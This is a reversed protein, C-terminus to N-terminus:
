EHKIYLLNKGSLLLKNESFSMHNVESDEQLEIELEWNLGANITSYLNNDSIIFWSDRDKIFFFKVNNKILSWNSGLDNSVMFEESSTITFLLDHDFFYPYWGLNYDEGSILLEWNDYGNSSRIVYKKLDSLNDIDLGLEYFYDDSGKGYARTRFRDESFLETSANSSTYSNGRDNTYINASCCNVIISSTEDVFKVEVEFVYEDDSLFNGFSNTNEFSDSTYYGTSPNVVVGIDKNYMKLDSKSGGSIDTSITQYGSKTGTIKKVDGYYSSSASLNDVLSTITNSDDFIFAKLIELGTDIKYWGKPVIFFDKFESKKDSVQVALTSNEIGMTNSINITILNNSIPTIEYQTDNIIVSTNFDTNIFNSGEITLTEGELIFDTSLVSIEPKAIEEIPDSLEITTSEDNSCSIVFLIIPIFLFKIKM